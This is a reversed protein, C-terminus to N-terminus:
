QAFLYHHGLRRPCRHSIRRAHARATCHNRAATRRLTEMSTGFGGRCFYLVGAFLHVHLSCSLAAEVLVLSFHRRPPRSLLRPSFTCRVSSPPRLVSSLPRHVTSSLRTPNAMRPLLPLPPCSCLRY